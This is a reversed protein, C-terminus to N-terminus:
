LFFANELSLYALNPNIDLYFDALNLYNDPDSINESIRKQIEELQM